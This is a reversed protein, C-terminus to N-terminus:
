FLFFIRPVGLAPGDCSLDILCDANKRVEERDKGRDAVLPEPHRRASQQM